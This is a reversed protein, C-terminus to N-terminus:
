LYLFNKLIKLGVEGSKEPHFQTGYFNNQQIVGAAKIKGYKYTALINEKNTEVYYSNVFYFYSEDEVEKFLSNQKTQELNNWGIQPIKENNPFLKVGGEIIGFCKTNDEQSYPLLLQMGLCIGLFPQKLQKIVKDLSKDKLDDMAPKARGQGPFIVRDATLIKKPEDTIEYEFGLREVANAVSAINGANYKIIAIM